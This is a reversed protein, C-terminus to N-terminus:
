YDFTLIQDFGYTFIHPPKYRPLNVYANFEGSEFELDLTRGVSNSFAAIAKRGKM